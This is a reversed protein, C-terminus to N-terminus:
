LVMLECKTIFYIFGGLVYNPVFVGQGQDRYMGFGASRLIQKMFACVAGYEKAKNQRSRREVQPGM